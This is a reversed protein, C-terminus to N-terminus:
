YNVHFLLLAFYFLIVRFFGTFRKLLSIKPPKGVGRVKSWARRAVM